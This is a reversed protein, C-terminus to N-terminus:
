GSKLLHVNGVAIRMGSLFGTQNKVQVKTDGISAATTLITSARPVRSWLSSSGAGAGAEGAGTRNFSVRPHGGYGDEVSKRVM